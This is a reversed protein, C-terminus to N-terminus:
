LAFLLLCPETSLTFAEHTHHRSKLPGADLCLCHGGTIDAAPFQPLPDGLCAPWSSDISNTLELNLLLDILFSFFLCFFLYEPATLACSKISGCNDDMAFVRSGGKQKGQANCMDDLLRFRQKRKPKIFLLWTLGLPFFIRPRM